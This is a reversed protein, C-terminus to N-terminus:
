ERLEGTFRNLESGEFRNFVAHENAVFRAKALRGEGIFGKVVHPTDDPGNYTPPPTVGPPVEVAVDEIIETPASVAWDGEAALPVSIDVLVTASDVGSGTKTEVASPTIHVFVLAADTGSGTHVDVGSPTIAVRITSSDLYIAM